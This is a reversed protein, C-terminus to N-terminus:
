RLRSFNFLQFRNSPILVDQRDQAGGVTVSLEMPGPTYRTRILHIDAPLSTWGRTDPTDAAALTGEVALALLWGLVGAVARDAGQSRAASSTVVRTAEGAVARVVARSIAAALATGAVLVWAAEAQDSLSIVAGSHGDQGATFQVRRRSPLGRRTLEPMNVWTVIGRRYLHLAQRHNAPTLYLAHYPSRSSYTLAQTMPIRRAQRYPILGTQVVLLTDGGLQHRAQYTHRDPRPHARAQEFIPAARDQLDGLDAGAYGTLALLDLLRDPGPEPWVGYLHARTYYRAAEDYERSAEFAAGALYNGLGLLDPLVGRLEEDIFFGQLIDFRRAEVRASELRDLALFNIMNLVHVLLREHPPARYTGVDDSYFFRLVSEATGSSLDVWELRDEAAILDLSSQDYEGLAQLLAARELLLLARDGNLRDPQLRSDDVGLEENIVTIATEHEGSLVSRQADRVRDTYSACGVLAPLLVLLLLLRIASPPGAM